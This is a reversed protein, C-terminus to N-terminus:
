FSISLRAFSLPRYAQLVILCLSAVLANKCDSFRPLDNKFYLGNPTTMVVYGGPKLLRSVQLLFEDPHAVHEIIETIVVCDFLQPFSLVFANGPAFQLSCDGQKLRVYGELESRLDNWTVQYGIEALRISFNGQAAAIDLVRSGKKIRSSVANITKEARNRYAYTYGNGSCDSWIELCDYAYSQKWSDPWAENLVLKKM